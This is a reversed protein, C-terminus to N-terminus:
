RNLEWHVLTEDRSAEKFNNKLLVRQSATHLLPTDAIIKKLDSNRFAWPIIASLAETAIGRRFYRMDLGYGTMSKGHQDPLGSFGIGGVAVNEEKFIIEWTTYWEFQLYHKKTNKIWFETAEELDPQVSPDNQRELYRLGLNEALAQPNNKFLILQEHTLPVLKLRSTELMTELIKIVLFYM